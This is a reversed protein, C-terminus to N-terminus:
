HPKRPLMYPLPLFGNKELSCKMSWCSPASLFRMVSLLKVTKPFIGFFYWRSHSLLRGSPLIV